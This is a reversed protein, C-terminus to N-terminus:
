KWALLRAEGEKDREGTLEEVIAAENMDGSMVLYGKFTLVMTRRDLAMLCM